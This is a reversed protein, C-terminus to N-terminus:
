DLDLVDFGTTKNYQLVGDALRIGKYADTIANGVDLCDLPLIGGESAAAMM